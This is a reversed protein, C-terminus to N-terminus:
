SKKRREKEMKGRRRGRKLEGLVVFSMAAKGRSKGGMEFVVGGMVWSRRGSCLWRRGGGHGKVERGEEDGVVLLCFSPSAYM